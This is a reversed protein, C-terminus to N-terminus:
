LYQELVNRENAYVQEQSSAVIQNNLKMIENKTLNGSYSSKGQESLILALNPTHPYYLEFETPADFSLHDARINVIPQDSTIFPIKTNNYLLILQMNSDERSLVYGMNTALIHSVVNWVREINLGFQAYKRPMDSFATKIHEKIHNTRLYQTALFYNFEIRNGEDAYFAIDGSRVNELYPIALGEIGCHFNEELNNMTVDLQKELELDIKGSAEYLKKIEFALNFGNLLDMHLPRLLPPSTDIWLLKILAIDNETLENLRYFDRKQAINILNTPFINKDRLCFLQGDVTWAELYHKWVYHQKRKKM